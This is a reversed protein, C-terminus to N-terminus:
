VEPPEYALNSATALFFANQPDGFSDERLELTM